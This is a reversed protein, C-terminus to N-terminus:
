KKDKALKVFEEIREIPNDKPQQDVKVEERTGVKGKSTIVLLTRICLLFGQYIQANKVDSISRRQINYAQISWFPELNIRANSLFSISPEKIHKPIDQYFDQVIFDWFTEKYRNYLFKLIM